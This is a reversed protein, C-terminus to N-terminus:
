NKIDDSYMYLYTGYVTRYQQYIGFKTCNVALLNCECTNLTPIWNSVSEFETLYQSSM